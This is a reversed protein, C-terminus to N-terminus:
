RRTPETEIFRAMIINDILQDGFRFEAVERGEEVFGYRRYLAIARANNAFVSLKVKAVQHQRAWELLRQLLASGIGRGWYARLVGVGLMATHRNATLPGRHIDGHGVIRTGDLALLWWNREPWAAAEMLHQRLDELLPLEDPALPGHLTEQVLSQLHKHLAPADKATAPRYTIPM